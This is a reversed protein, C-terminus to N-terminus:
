FYREQLNGSDWQTGYADNGFFDDDGEFDDNYYLLDDDLDKASDEDSFNHSNDIKINIKSIIRKAQKEKTKSYSGSMLQEELREKVDFLETLRPNSKM